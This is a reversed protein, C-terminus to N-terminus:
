KHKWWAPSNVATQEKKFVTTVHSGTQIQHSHKTYAVYNFGGMDGLEHRNHEKGRFVNIERNFWYNILNQLFNIVTQRDGGFVGANLLTLNPNLRLFDQVAQTPHHQKMWPDNLTKEEWGTYLVGPKMWEWPERLM